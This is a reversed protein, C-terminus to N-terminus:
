EVSDLALEIMNTFIKEREEPTTEKHTIINDSVTLICAAQKGLVDANHFLAFSEMEVALCHHNQVLDNIDCAGDEYYFIDSSYITGTLIEKNTEQATKTIRQYIKDTANLIDREDKSQVRGFSSTSYASQVNIVSYLDIDEQYAGCSGVRIITEVDYFKYLEYSYIGMSPMGMGSAMITVEKGKYNGTYAPIGRIESVLKANELYTEAIFKARKPDGPMIVTKAIEGLKAGIHPTM